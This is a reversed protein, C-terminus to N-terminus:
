QERMHLQDLAVAADAPLLSISPRVGEPASRVPGSAPIRVALVGDQLPLTFIPHLGIPMRCTQRVEISVSLEITARNPLLRIQRELRLIAHDSPYDIALRASTEDREVMQWHHNAGYSHHEPDACITGFPVCPWEGGLTGFHTAGTLPLRGAGQLWGAEALPQFSGGDRTLFQLHHLAAGLSWVQASAYDSALTLIETQPEARHQNSM